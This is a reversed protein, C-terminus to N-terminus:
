DNNITIANHSQVIDTSHTQGMQQQGPRMYTTHTVLSTNNNPAPQHAQGPSEHKMTSCQVPYIQM